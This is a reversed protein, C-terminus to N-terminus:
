ATKIYKKFGEIDKPSGLIHIQEPSFVAITNGKDQGADVGIVSDFSSNTNKVIRPNVYEDSDHVEKPVDALPAHAKYPNKVNVKAMYVERNVPFGFTNAYEHDTSFYTVFGKAGEEKMKSGKMTGHYVVEKVQSDPFITSLYKEYEEKSGIGKLEKPVEPTTNEKLGGKGWTKGKGKDSCQSPTPRCSPYKSRKEGPGRGCAKCKKKGNVNKCTNCDVWGGTKGEAGKRSFWKHLSEDESVEEEEKLGKWIDGQRCRVIAGSRYASPKDYKRRAIDLCRDESLGGPFYGFENLDNGDWGLDSAKVKKTLLKPTEKDYTYDEVYTKSLTVWDGVNISDVENPVARYITVEKDPKGRLGLLIAASEKTPKNTLDHDQKVYEWEFGTDGGELNDATTLKNAKHQLRYDSESLNVKEAAKTIAELAEGVGKLSSQLGRCVNTLDSYKKYTERDGKEEAKWAFEDVDDHIKELNEWLRDGLSALQEVSSPNKIMSGVSMGEFAKLFRDVRSTAESVQQSFKKFEEQGLEPTYEMEEFIRKRIIPMRKKKKGKGFAFPTAYQPGDGPTFAAGTGTTIVEELLLKIIEV